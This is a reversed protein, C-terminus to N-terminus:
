GDVCKHNLYSKGCYSVDDVLVNKIFTVRVVIRCM